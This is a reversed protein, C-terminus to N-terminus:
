CPGKRAIPSPLWLGAAGSLRASYSAGRAGGEHESSDACHDCVDRLDRFCHIGESRGTSVRSLYAKLKPERWSHSPFYNVQIGAGGGSDSGAITLVVPASKRDMDQLAASPRDHNTGSTPCYAPPTM